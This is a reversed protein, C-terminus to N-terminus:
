EVARDAATEGFMTRNRMSASQWTQQSMVPTEPSIM